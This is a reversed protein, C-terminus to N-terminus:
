HSPGESIPGIGRAHFIGRLKGLHKGNYLNRDADLIARAGRAFTTFADQQFHSEILIRDAIERGLARWIDWLTASWIKGNEHEDAEESHDFSEFTVPEDLRRLCPPDGGYTIADWSIVTPKFRKGSM